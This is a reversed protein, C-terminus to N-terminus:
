AWIGKKGVIQWAGAVSLLEVEDGVNATAKTNVLNTNAAARGAGGITDTGNPVITVAMSKNGSAGVPAGTPAAGGNRIKFMVGAAAAPLTINKGDAVVNIVVGTHTDKVLTLNASVDLKTRGDPLNAM